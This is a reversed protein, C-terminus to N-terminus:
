EREGGRQPTLGHLQTTKNMQKISVVRIRIVVKGCFRGHCIHGLFNMSSDHFLFLFLNSTFFLLLFLLLFPGFVRIMHKGDRLWLWREIVLNLKV